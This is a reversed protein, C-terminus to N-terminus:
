AFVDAVLQGQANLVCGAHGLSALVVTVDVQREHAMCWAGHLKTRLAAGQGQYCAAGLYVEPGGGTCGDHVHGQAPEAAVCQGPAGAPRAEQERVGRPRVAARVHRYLVLSATRPAHPATCRARQNTRLSHPLPNCLPSHPTHLSGHSLIISQTTTLSALLVLLKLLNTRLLHILPHAPHSQSQISSTFMHHSTSLTPMAHKILCPQAPQSLKRYCAPNLLFLPVHEPRLLFVVPHM